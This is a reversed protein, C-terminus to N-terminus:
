SKTVRNAGRRIAENIEAITREIAADDLDDDFGDMEGAQITTAFVDNSLGDTSIGRSSDFHDPTEWELALATVNDSRAGAKRLAHEVLEPIAETVPLDTLYQVIEADSVQDWLGDSCLMIKDRHQLLM